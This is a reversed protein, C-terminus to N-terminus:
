GGHGRPNALTWEFDTGFGNRLKRAELWAVLNNVRPAQEEVREQTAAIFTEAAELRKRSERASSRFTV